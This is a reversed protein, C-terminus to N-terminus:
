LCKNNATELTAPPVRLHEGKLEQLLAYSLLSCLSRTDTAVAADRLDQYLRSGVHVTGTGQKPTSEYWAKFAASEAYDKLMDVDIGFAMRRVTAGVTLHYRAALSKIRALVDAYVAVAAPRPKGTRLTRLSPYADLSEALSGAHEALIATALIDVGVSFVNSLDQVMRYVAPNVVISRVPRPGLDAWTQIVKEDIADYNEELLIGATTHLPLNHLRCASWLNEFVEADVAIHM